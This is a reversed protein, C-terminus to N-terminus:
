AVKGPHGIFGYQCGVGSALFDINVVGHEIDLPWQLLLRFATSYKLRAGMEPYATRHKKPYSDGM